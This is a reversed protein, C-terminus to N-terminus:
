FTNGMNGSKEYSIAVAPRDTIIPSLFAECNCFCLEVTWGYRLFFFLFLDKCLTEQFSIMVCVNSLVHATCCFANSTVSIRCICICIQVHPFGGCFDM